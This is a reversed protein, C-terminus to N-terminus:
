QRALRALKLFEAPLETLGDLALDALLQGIVPAFKFGHGSFGAALTVRLHGPLRDIIFHGDPSNTYMCVRVALLPGAAAPIFQEVAARCDAEDEPLPTRQLADPEATPGPWHRAIKFGPNDSLMPFGYHSSGDAHAIAWIPLRGLAFLDPQRPWFWVLPQRSVRLPIQLGSLLPATWAGGCFILQDARYVGRDTSVEVHEPTERWGRVAEHAQVRGGHRLAAVVQAAVCAEPLLFGAQSELVAAFDDPLHFQPFREALAQRDLREYPVQHRDASEITRQIQESGGPGMYLGGTITLLSQQTAQELEQWLAYARRLLPVYDPHEHYALRIARSYGHSSGRANPVDFQELGLVRAGRAALQWAAASGMAGVGVVIVDFNNASTRPM